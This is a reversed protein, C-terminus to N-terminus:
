QETIRRSIGTASMITNLLNAIRSPTDRTQCDHVVMGIRRRHVAVLVALTAAAALIMTLVAALVIAFVALTALIIVLRIMMVATFMVIATLVVALLV